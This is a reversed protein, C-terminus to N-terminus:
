AASIPSMTEIHIAVLRAIAQEDSEEENKSSSSESDSDDSDYVSEAEEGEKGDETNGEGGTTNDEGMQDGKEEADERRWKKGEGEKGDEEGVESESVDGIEGFGVGSTIASRGSVQESDSEAGHKDIGRLEASDKHEGVNAISKYFSALQDPAMVDELLVGAPQQHSELPLLGGNTGADLQTSAEGSGILAPNLPFENWTAYSYSSLDGRSSFDTTSSSTPESYDTLFGSTAPLSPFQHLMPEGFLASNSHMANNYVTGDHFLHEFLQNQFYFSTSDADKNGCTANTLHIDTELQVTYEPRDTQSSVTFDTSTDLGVPSPHSSQQTPFLRNNDCHTQNGEVVM